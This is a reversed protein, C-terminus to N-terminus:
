IHRTAVLVLIGIIYGILAGAVVDSLYHVGLYLRSILVLLAFGLWLWKLKPYEKDILALPAFVAVAHGSPFSFSNEVVPNLIAPRPRAVFHKLLFTLTAAVFLTLWLVPIYERKKRDFLFLATTLVLVVLAAGLLSVFSMFGFMIRSSHETVLLIRDLFLSLILLIVGTIIIPGKKVHKIQHLKYLFM